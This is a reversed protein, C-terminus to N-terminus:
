ENANSRGAYVRIKDWIKANGNCSNGYRNAQYQQEHVEISKRVSQPGHGDGGHNFLRALPHEILPLLDQGSLPHIGIVSGAFEVGGGGWVIAQHDKAV